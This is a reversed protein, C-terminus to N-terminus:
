CIYLPIGEVGRAHWSMLIEQQIQREREQDIEQKEM